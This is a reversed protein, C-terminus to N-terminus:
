VVKIGILDSNHNILDHDQNNVWKIQDFTNDIPSGETPPTPQDSRIESVTMTVPSTVLQRCSSSTMGIYCRGRGLVFNDEIKFNPFQKEMTPADEWTAESPPLNRWKVLVQMCNRTFRYSLIAEPGVQGDEMSRSLSDAIVNKKGAKYKIEFNFGLLKSIWKHYHALVVAMLEREYASRMKTISSLAKSFYAIPHGDQLLVAGLGIGSADTEVVFPRTFNPLKLIPTTSLAQKLQNFASTAEENWAFSNKKLLSTLPQAKSAYNVVFRRYYNTLGLFGRLQKISSPTPWQVIADIKHPDTAVGEHSIAHGLYDIQNQAIQCKAPNVWLQKDQLVKFVSHLHDEHESATRSYVLIDDFFVLVFKRLFPKFISNLLSRPLHPDCAEYLEKFQRKSSIFEQVTTTTLVGRPLLEPDTKLTHVRGEWLIKLNLLKYNSYFWELTKLWQVGLIIEMHPLPIPILDQKVQLGQMQIPVNLCIGASQQLVGNALLIDFPPGQIVTLYLTTVLESKIFNHTAGGDILIRVRVGKISGWLKVLGNPSASEKDKRQQFEKETLRLNHRKGSHGAPQQQSVAPQHRSTSAKIDPAQVNPYCPNNQWASYLIGLDMEAQLSLDMIEKIGYPRAKLVERCIEPKLGRLYANEKVDRQLHPLQAIIREFAARYDTVFGTQQIEFLSKYLGRVCIRYRSSFHEKFEDWTQMGFELEAYEFWDQAAEVLHLSILHMKEADPMPHQRFFREARKISGDPNEGQFIPLDGRKFVSDTALRPPPQRDEPPDRPARPDPPNVAHPSALAKMDAMQVRIEAMQEMIRELVTNTRKQFELNSVEGEM